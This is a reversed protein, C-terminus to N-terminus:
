YGPGPEINDPPEKEDAVPGVWHSFVWGEKPEAEVIVLTDKAFHHTGAGPNVSGAGSLQLSLEAVPPGEINIAKWGFHATEVIFALFLLAVLIVWWRGQLIERINM